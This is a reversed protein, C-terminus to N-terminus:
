ARPFSLLGVQRLGLKACIWPAEAAKIYTVAAQAEVYTVFFDKAVLKDVAFGKCTTVAHPHVKNEEDRLLWEVPSGSRSSALKSLQQYTHTTNRKLM